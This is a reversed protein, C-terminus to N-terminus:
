TMLALPTFHPYELLGPISFGFVDADIIGMRFGQQSVAAALNVTIFRGLNEAAVPYKAPPYFM